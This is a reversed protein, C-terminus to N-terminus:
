LFFSENYISGRRSQATDHGKVPENMLAVSPKASFFHFSENSQKNGAKSILVSYYIIVVLLLLIGTLKLLDFMFKEDKTLNMSFFPARAKRKSKVTSSKKKEKTESISKKTIKQPTMTKSTTRVKKRSKDVAPQKNKVIVSANSNLKQGLLTKIDDEFTSLLKNEM